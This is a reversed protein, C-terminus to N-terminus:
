RFKAKFETSSPPSHGTERGLWKVFVPFSGGDDTPRTGSGTCGSYLLPADSDTRSISSLIEPRGTGLRSVSSNRDAIEKLNM